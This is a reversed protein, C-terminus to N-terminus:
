FSSVQNLRFICAHEIPHNEVNMKKKIHIPFRPHGARWLVNNLKSIHIVLNILSMPM